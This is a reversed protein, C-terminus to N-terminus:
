DKRKDSVNGTEKNYKDALRDYETAQSKAQAKLADPLPYFDDFYM